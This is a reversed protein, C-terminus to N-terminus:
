AFFTCFCFFCNYYFRLSQDRRYTRCFRGSGSYFMFVSQSSIKRSFIRKKQALIQSPTTTISQKSLEENIVAELKLQIAKIGSLAQKGVFLKVSEDDEIAYAQEYMLQLNFATADDVPIHQYVVEGQFKRLIEPLFEKKLQQCQECTSSSFLYIMLPQNKSEGQAFSIGAILFVSLM